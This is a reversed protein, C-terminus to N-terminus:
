FEFHRKDIPIKRVKIINNSIKDLAKMFSAKSPPNGFFLDDMDYEDMERMQHVLKEANLLYDEENKCSSALVGFQLTLDHNFIEAEIIVPKYTENSLDDTDM